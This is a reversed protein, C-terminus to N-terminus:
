QPQIGAQKVVTSWRGIQARLFQGFEASSEGGPEVGMSQFKSRVDPQRISTSIEGQLRNVIATPTGAPVVIGNWVIAEFNPLGASAVTPLDVLPTPKASAVALAKLKGSNVQQAVSSWAGVFLMQIQGSVLDAVAQPDGKYPVHVMDVHAMLKFMEGALHASSGVGASGYSLQGPKSQAYDILDKVTSGPVGPNVVLVTPGSAVMTVPTFSKESDYPLKRIISPNITYSATVCLLTYGDPLARSALETALMTGAGPRNDAVVQQELRETLKQAVIRQALDTSGGATFAIILGIPRQPYTDAAFATAGACALVIVGVWGCKRRVNKM